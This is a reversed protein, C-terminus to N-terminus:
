QHFYLRIDSDFIGRIDVNFILYEANEPFDIKISDTINQKNLIKNESDIWIVEVKKQGMGANSFSFKSFNRDIKIPNTSDNWNNDVYAYDDGINGSCTKYPIYQVYVCHLLISDILSSSIKPLIYDGDANKFIGKLSKIETCIISTGLYRRNAGVYIGVNSDQSPLNYSPIDIEKNEYYDIYCQKEQSVVGSYGTYILVSDKTPSYINGIFKIGNSSVKAHILGDKINNNAVLIDSTYSRNLTWDTTNIRGAILFMGPINKMEDNAHIIHIGDDVDDTRYSKEINFAINGEINFNNVDVKTFDFVRYCLDFLNNKVNVISSNVTLRFVYKFYDIYNNRIISTDISGGFLVTDGTAPRYGSLYNDYIFSDVVANSFCIGQVSMINNKYIHSVNGVKGNFVVGFGIINCNRVTGSNFNFDFLTVNNGGEFGITDFVHNHGAQSSTIDQIFVSHETNPITLIANKSIGYYKIIKPLVITGVVKYTKGLFMVPVNINYSITSAVQIAITDDITGNGAAGFYEPYLGKINWTGTLKVGSLIVVNDNITASSNFIKTIGSLIGTNQGVITGNSLSGGNFKLVCNAPITITADALDFDYQIVYITNENPVRNGVEGKYFMDQTLTNVGEVINKRLIKRGLGSYVLPNYVKDKFKLVDTGEVNVSTLDEEDAANNVDGIIKVPAYNEMISNVMERNEELTEEKIVNINGQLNQEVSEARQKEQNIKLYVGGSKVLNNSGSTPEADIGVESVKEGTSFEALGSEQWDAIDNSWNQNTLRYQVYKNDSNSISGQIFRISMGGCRVSTPILTNLNSSSLLAQLSEFVVNDNHASVDYVIGLKIEDIINDLRKNSEDYVAKTSTVPYVDTNQTGGVLDTELIKKIKGM